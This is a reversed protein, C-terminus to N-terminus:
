DLMDTEPLAEASKPRGVTKVYAKANRYVVKAIEKIAERLVSDVEFGDLFGHFAGGFKGFNVVYGGNGRKRRRITLEPIVSETDIIAGNNDVIFRINGYAISRLFKATEYMRKSESELDLAKAEVENAKDALENYMKINKIKM